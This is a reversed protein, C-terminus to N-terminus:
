AALGLSAPEGGRRGKFDSHAKMCSSSCGLEKWLWCLGRFRSLLQLLAAAHSPHTVLVSFQETELISSRDDSHTLWAKVQGANSRIPQYTHTHIHIHPKNFTIKWKKGTYKKNKKSKAQIYLVTVQRCM